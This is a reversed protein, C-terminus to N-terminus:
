QNNAGTPSTDVGKKADQLSLSASDLMALGPLKVESKIKDLTKAGKAFTTLNGTHAKLISDVRCGIHALYDLIPQPVTQDRYIGEYNLVKEASTLEHVFLAISYTVINARFGAYWPQAQIHQELARTLLTHVICRKFYEEDFATKGSSWKANVYTAFNGFNAQAGKSVSAPMMRWTNEVKALDTKTILQSRPNQIQFAKRDAKSLYAQENVYQGRTREYFWRTSTTSGEKPRSYLRRSMEEFHLHFPHNSFLDADSVKNQSNAYRAVFPVIKEVKDAKVVALKMQVSVKSVDCKDKIVSAYISATTQGGNVIQFNEISKIATKGRDTFEIHEATTTLGNNYAFFSKPDEKITSRIGQNVKGRNQLYSRVNQELLRSGWRDYLEFLTKGPMVALVSMMENSSENTVLCRLPKKSLDVILAEREKGSQELEFLRRLDWIVVQAKVGSIDIKPATKVRNSTPKNSVVYVNIKRLGKWANKIEVATKCVQSTPEFHSYPDNKIADNTFKGVRKTLGKLDTNTLNSPLPSQTFECIFLNLHKADREYSYADIRWRKGADSGGEILEYEEFEGADVLLSLAFDLFQGEVFAGDAEARSSVQSLLSEYYEGLNM